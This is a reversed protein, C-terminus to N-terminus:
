VRTGEILQLMPHKAKLPEFASRLSTGNASTVVLLSNMRPVMICTEKTTDVGAFIDNMLKRAFLVEQLVEGGSKSHFEYPIPPASFVVSPKGDVVETRVMTALQPVVDWTIYYPKLEPITRLYKDGGVGIM